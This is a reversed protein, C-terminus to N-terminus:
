QVIHTAHHPQFMIGQMGFTTVAIPDLRQNLKVPHGSCAPTQLGPRFTEFWGQLAEFTIPPNVFGTRHSPM